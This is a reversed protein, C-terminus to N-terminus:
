TLESIWMRVVLGISLVKTVSHQRHAQWHGGGPFGGHPLQEVVHFGLERSRRIARRRPCRGAASM